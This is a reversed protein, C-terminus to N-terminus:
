LKRSVIYSGKECVVESLLEYKLDREGKLIATAEAQTEWTHDDFIVIGGKKIKAHWSRTVRVSVVESHNSDSHFVDISGDAFGEIAETDMMRCLEVTELGLKKLQVQCTRYVQEINLKSWWEEHATGAEGEIAAAKTWPDIGIFRGTGLFQGAMAM